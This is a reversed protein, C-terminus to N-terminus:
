PRETGEPVGKYYEDETNFESADIKKLEQNDPAQKSRSSRHLREFIAAPEKWTDRSWKAQGCRVSKCAIEGIEGGHKSETGTYDLCRESIGADPARLVVETIRLRSFNQEFARNLAWLSCYKWTGVCDWKIWSSGNGVRPYRRARVFLCTWTSRM